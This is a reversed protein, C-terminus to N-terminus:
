GADVGPVLPILIEMLLALPSLVCLLGPVAWAIPNLVPHRSLPTESRFLIPLTLLRTAAAVPIM